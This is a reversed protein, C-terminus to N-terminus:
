REDEVERDAPRLSAQEHPTGGLALGLLESVYAARIAATACLDKVYASRGRITTPGGLLDEMLGAKASAMRTAAASAAGAVSACFRAYGSVNATSFSSLLAEVTITTSCPM